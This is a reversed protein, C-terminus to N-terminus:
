KADEQLGTTGPSLSTDGKHLKDIIVALAGDGTVNCATGFSDMAIYLAIMLAQADPTFGLIGTMPGLAAMVAGGPVGPAAVMCVGLLMIFHIFLPLDHPLGGILCVTLACCTIKMMSGSLHITACLPISFSAIEDSVGNKKTQRLTVPITAASSSTGLATLYAPIMNLLLRLPNKRALGGAILFEYILIVIHLVFIICIIKAFVVIIRYAEGTYTMSLFIGFIYLPLFPIIATAITKEIITRFESCGKKLTPSDTYAIGIGIVFSSVLAAMVDLIPPIDLIFYPLLNQAKEVKVPEADILAPFLTTGTFFALLGAIITDAYALGVTLLLLKGAARGIDAIAPAVLGIIILPILFGLFQSFVYNFTVFVRVWGEPLMNGILVGLVIAIIIRPLLGIKKM